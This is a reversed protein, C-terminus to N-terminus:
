GKLLVTHINLLTVDLSSEKNSYFTKEDDDGGGQGQTTLLLLIPSHTPLKPCWSGGSARDQGALKARRGEAPRYPNYILSIGM